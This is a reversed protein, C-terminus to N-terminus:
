LGLITAVADRVAPKDIIEQFRQHEWMRKGNEEEIVKVQTRVMM